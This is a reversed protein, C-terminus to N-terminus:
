FNIKVVDKITERCIPCSNGVASKCRDCIMHGCPVIAVCGNCYTEEKDVSQIDTFKFKNLCVPCDKSMFINKFKIDKKKPKCKQFLFEYIEYETKSISKYKELFNNEAFDFNFRELIDLMNKLFYKNFESFTKHIMNEQYFYRSFILQTIEKGFQNIDPIFEFIVYLIDQIANCYKENFINEEILDLTCFDSILNSNEVRPNDNRLDLLSKDYNFRMIYSLVTTAERIKGHYVANKLYIALSRHGIIEIPTETIIRMLINIDTRVNLVVNFLCTDNRGDPLKSLYSIDTHELIKYFLQEDTYGASGIIMALNFKSEGNDLDWIYSCIYKLTEEENEHLDIARNVYYEVLSADYYGEFVNKIFNEKAEDDFPTKVANITTTKTM